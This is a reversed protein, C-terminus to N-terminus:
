DTALAGLFRTDVRGLLSTLLTSRWRDSPNPRPNDFVDLLFRALTRGSPLIRLRHKVCWESWGMPECSAAKTFIVFDIAWEVEATVMTLPLCERFTSNHPHDSILSDNIQCRQQYTLLTRLEGCFQTDGIVHAKDYLSMFENCQFETKVITKLLDRVIEGTIPPEYQISFQYLDQLVKHSVGLLSNKIQDHDLRCTEIYLVASVIQSPYRPLQISTCKPDDLLAARLSPLADLVDVKM